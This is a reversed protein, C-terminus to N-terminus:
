RTAMANLRSVRLTTPNSVTRAYPTAISLPQHDTTLPRDVAEPPCPAAGRRNGKM